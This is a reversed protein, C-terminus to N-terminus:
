KPLRDGADVVLAPDRDRRMGEHRVRQACLTPDKAAQGVVGVRAVAGVREFREIRRDKPAEPVALHDRERASSPRGM